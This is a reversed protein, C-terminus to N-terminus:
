ANSQLLRSSTRKWESGPLIAGIATLSADTSLIFDTSFDPYALLPPNALARRLTDFSDECEETWTFKTGKHTLKTLPSAIKSFYKIFRRYFSALGLFSRVNTPNKPRPWSAVKNINNPDPLVGNANIVYGLYTVEKRPANHGLPNTKPSQFLPDHTRIGAM